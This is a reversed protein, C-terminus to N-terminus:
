NRRTNPTAVCKQDRPDSDDRAPFLVPHSAGRSEAIRRVDTLAESMRALLFRLQAPTAGSDTLLDAAHGLLSDAMDLQVSEVTDALRSVPGTGDGVLYCPKGEAGTWPLLRM